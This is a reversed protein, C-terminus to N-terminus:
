YLSHPSVWAGGPPCKESPEGYRDRVLLWTIEIPIAGGHAQCIQRLEEISSQTDLYLVEGSDIEAILLIYKELEPNWGMAFERERGDFVYENM